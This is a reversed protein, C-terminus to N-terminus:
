WGECLFADKGGVIVGKVGYENIVNVATIIERVYNAKIYLSKTKNFLGRMAEFKLNTITHQKQESYAKAQDFFKKLSKMQEEWAEQAAGAGLSADRMAQSKAAFADAQPGVLALV